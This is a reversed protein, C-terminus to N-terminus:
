TKWEKISRLSKLWHKDYDSIKNNVNFVIPFLVNKIELGKFNKEKIM